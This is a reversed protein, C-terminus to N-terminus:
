PAGLGDFFPEPTLLGPPPAQPHVSVTRDHTRGNLDAVSLHYVAPYAPCVERSGHDEVNYWASGDNFSVSAAGDVSWRVNTCEGITISSRDVSFDIRLRPANTGITINRTTQSGDLSTVRLTYNPGDSSPCVWQAGQGPVGRTRGAYELYVAQANRVDWRVNTCQGPDVQTADSWFRVNVFPSQTPQPPTPPAPPAVVHIVVSFQQGYLNHYSDEVQWFGNYVGPETPAVMRVSVDVTAGISVRDIRVNAPASMQYGGVFTLATGREFICTGSNRVRWTKTFRQGPRMVTGAPITLDSVLATDHTCPAATPTATVDPTPVIVVYVPLDDAGPSPTVVAAPLWANGNPGAPYPIQWWSSDGNRGNTPIVTGAPLSGLSESNDDPWAYITADSVVHLTALLPTPTQGAATTVLVSCIVLALVTTLPVRIRM